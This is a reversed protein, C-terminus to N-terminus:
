AADGKISKEFDVYSVGGGSINIDYDGTASILRGLAPLDIEVPQKTANIEEIYEAEALVSMPVHQSSLQRILGPTMLGYVPGSESEVVQKYGAIFMPWKILAQMRADEHRAILRSVEASGNPASEQFYEPFFREVPLPNPNEATKMVLRMNGVVRALSRVATREFVLYHISREDDADLETGDDNLETEKVFGNAVYTKARLEAAGIFEAMNALEDPKVEAIALQADTDEFIHSEVIPIVEAKEYNM